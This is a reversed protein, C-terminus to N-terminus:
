DRSVSWIPASWFGTGNETATAFLGLLCFSPSIWNMIIIYGPNPESAPLALQASKQETHKLLGLALSHNLDRDRKRERKRDRHEANLHRRGIIIAASLGFTPSRHSKCSLNFSAHNSYVRLGSATQQGACLCRCVCVAKKNGKKRWGVILAERVTWNECHARLM